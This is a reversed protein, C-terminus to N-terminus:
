RGARRALGRRALVTGVAGATVAVLVVAALLVGTRDAPAETTAEVNELEGVPLHWVVTTGDVEDANHELVPAAFTVRLDYRVLQDGQEELLTALDDADFSLGEGDAGPSSPPRLGALGSFRARGDEDVALSLDDFLRADEVDLADHLDNALAQFEGTDAFTTAVTVVSEGDEEHREVQWGPASSALEDVGSMPDFGAAGLDAATEEDLAFALELTGSGDAAVEIDTAVRLQCASLMSMLVVLLLHQPRVGRRM